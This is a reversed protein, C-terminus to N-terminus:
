GNLLGWERLRTLADKIGYVVSGEGGADEIAAIFDLQAGSPRGRKIGAKSNAEVKYELAYVMPGPAIFMLDSVGPLVGMEKNLRGAAPHQERGENKTHWFIIDPKLRPRIVAVLERLQEDEIRRPPRRKTKTAARYDAATMSETMVSAKTIM